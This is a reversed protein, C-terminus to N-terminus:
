AQSISLLPVLLVLHLLTVVGSLVWRLHRYSVSYVSRFLPDREVWLLVWYGALLVSLAFVMPLFYAGLAVLSVAISVTLPLKAMRHPHAQEVGWCAGAMFALIVISYVKFGDYGWSFGALALIAMALFPLLGAYGFRNSLPLERWWSALM